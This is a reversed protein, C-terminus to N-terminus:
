GFLRAAVATIQGPDALAIRVGREIASRIAELIEPPEDGRLPISLGAQCQRAVDSLAQLNEL